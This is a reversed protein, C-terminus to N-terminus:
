SLLRIVQSAFEDESDAITLLEDGDIIGEAGVSTTVVPTKTALAEVVKLKIGAGFRLPVVAVEAKEFFPVSSDVFGTFKINNSQLKLLEAPPNAGVVNLVAHPAKELIKPLINDVFWQVSDVNEPRNMAGWFIMQGRERLNSRAQYFEAAIKPYDVSVNNERGLVSSLLDKDKQNLVIINEIPLLENREWKIIKKYQMKFFYRKLVSDSQEAFRLLSQSIVDHFVLTSNIKKNQPIFIAGQEYEVHFSCDPIVKLLDAIASNIKRDNKIAIHFPLTLNMLLNFLRGIKSVGFVSVSKCFDYDEMNYYQM